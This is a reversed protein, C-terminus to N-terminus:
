IAKTVKKLYDLEDGELYPSLKDYVKKHYCNLYNIEEASMDELIICSTAIPALTIAEFGLFTGYDNKIKECCLLDNEIRIGYENEIYIGPEDSVLMGPEFVIGMTAEDRIPYSIRVPDEHVNLCYGIGHGTGHGFDKGEKWFISKVFMDLQTGRVGKKFQSFMLNLHARLVLTYDHKLKDDVEGIPYTRTIDTTGGLYQSGSDVLLFSGAEININSAESVSYHVIAGHEKYSAITDFSPSLMDIDMKRFEYLKNVIDLETLTRGSDIQEYLWKDFRVIAIGDKINTEKINRIEIPNKIAKLYRTPLPSDILLKEDVTAYIYYSVNKTDLLIGKKTWNNVSNLANKYFDKYEKIQIDNKALYKKIELENKGTINAYLTVTKNNFLLFSFFVPNCEIDNGRLNLLWAIDDLTAIIHTDAEHKDMENFVLAIKEKVSVGAYDLPMIRLENFILEPRNDWINSPDFDYRIKCGKEKLKKVIQSGQKANLIRGDFGFVMGAELRDKIYDEIKPTGNVGMKMLEISYGSLEEKAQIFYRSDTFLVTKDMDVILTGASGTFGSLYERLRFHESIYESDHFDSTPIMVLDVAESKMYDRLKNIKNIIDM